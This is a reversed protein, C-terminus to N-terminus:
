LAIIAVPACWESTGNKGHYRVSFYYKTGPVFGKLEFQCYTHHGGDVWSSEDNPDTTFRAQFTGNGKIGDVIISLFTSYAGHRVRLNKPVPTPGAAQKSAGKVHPKKLEFGNNHLVSPDKRRKYRMIIHQGWMIVAEVLAIRKAEVEQDKQKGSNIMAQVSAAYDVNMELLVSPGPVDEPVDQLGPHAAGREAIMGVTGILAPANLDRLNSELLDMSM